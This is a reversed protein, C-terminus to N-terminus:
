PLFITVAGAAASILLLEPFALIGAAFASLVVAVDWLNGGRITELEEITLDRMQVDTQKTETM